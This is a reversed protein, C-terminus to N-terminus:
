LIKQGNRSIYKGKQILEDECLTKRFDKNDLPMSINAFIIPFRFRSGLTVDALGDDIRVVFDNRIDYASYARICTEEFGTGSDKPHIIIVTLPSVTHPAIEAQYSQDAHGLLIDYKPKSYAVFRKAAGHPDDFKLAFSLSSDVDCIGCVCVCLILVQIKAELYM